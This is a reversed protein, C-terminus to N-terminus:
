PQELPVVWRNPGGIEEIEVNNAGVRALRYRQMFVDGERAIFTEEGNTLFVRRAGGASGQAFGFVRVPPKPPPPPPPTEEVVPTPAKIRPGAPQAAQGYQFINRRAAEPNVQAAPDLAALNLDADPIRASAKGRAQPRASVSTAAPAISDRLNVAIFVGVLVLLVVLKQRDTM